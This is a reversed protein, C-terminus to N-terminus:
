SAPRLWDKVGEAFRIPPQWGLTAQLRATDGVIVPATGPKNV